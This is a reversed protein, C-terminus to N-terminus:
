DGAAALSFGAAAAASAAVSPDAFLLAAADAGTAVGVFREGVGDDALARNAAAVVAALDYWDGLDRCRFRYLRQRHIFQVEYHGDQEDGEAEGDDLDAAGAAATAAGGGDGGPRYRELAAEVDFAGRSGAALERLLLDHRVPLEDTELAVPTLVGARELVDLFRAQLPEGAMDAAAHAALAAAAEEATVLGSEVAVRTMAEVSRGDLEGLFSDREAPEMHREAVRRAAALAAPGGVLRLAAAYNRPQHSYRLTAAAAELLEVLEADGSGSALTALGLAAKDAVEPEALAALLRPREAEGHLRALAVLAEGRVVTDPSTALREALPESGAPAERLVFLLEQQPPTEGAAFREALLAALAAAARERTAADGHGAVLIAWSLDRAPMSGALGALADVVAPSPEHRALDTLAAFAEEPPTGAGRSWLRAAAEPAVALVLDGAVARIAPSPDDLLAAVARQFGGTPDSGVGDGLGNRGLEEIAEQREDAPGDRVLEEYARWGSADGLELRTRAALLRTGVPIDTDSGLAALRSLSAERDGALAERMAADVWVLEGFQDLVAARAAALAAASDARAAALAAPTTVVEIAAAQRPEPNPPAAAEETQAGCAAAASGLAVLGAATRRRWRRALRARGGHRASRVPCPVPM